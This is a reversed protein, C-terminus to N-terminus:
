QAVRLTLMARNDQGIMGTIGRNAEIAVELGNQPGFRYAYGLGLMSRRLTGVSEWRYDAYFRGKASDSAVLKAGLQYGCNLASSDANNDECLLGPSLLLRTVTGFGEAGTLHIPATVPVSIRTVDVTGVRFDIGSRSEGLYQASLTANGLKEVARSVIADTTIITDGINFDGSLMWGFLQRKGTMSGDLVFGDSETLGFDYWARGLGVFAGTRLTENIRYRTYLSAQLSNDSIASEAFGLLRDNSRSGMVGVGIVTDADINAEFRLSGFMRTNWNGSMRSQTVGIDALVQYPRGCQSLNQSYNLELNASSENANLGGSFGNRGRNDTCVNDNANRMLGENFSLMDSLSQTAYTRLGTRLRDGIEDLKRGIEDVNGITVTLTQFSENGAADVARITVIYTNNRDSDTPNEFDPAVKFTLAGTVPDIDFKGADAGGSLSWTVAENATFTTVATLGEDITIASAAAGAGGSPGTILPAPDAVFPVELVGADQGDVTVSVTAVGPADSRLFATYTGDGNDRAPVSPGEPNIFLVGFDTSYVVNRGILPTGNEDKIFTTIEVADNGGAFGTSKDISIELSLAAFLTVTLTQTSVNGADDTATIVVVYSNSGNPDFAPATKFTLAGTAADIEFLDGNAGGGISWTVNKDAEFTFVAKEGEDITIASTAAGPNSGPGKIVPDTADRVTM